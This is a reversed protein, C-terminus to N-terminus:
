VHVYYIIACIPRWLDIYYESIYGQNWLCRLLTGPLLVVFLCLTLLQSMASLMFGETSRGYVIQLNLM